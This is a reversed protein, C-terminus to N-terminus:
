LEINSNIIREIEKRETEMEAKHIEEFHKTAANVCVKIQESPMGRKILTDELVDQVIVAWHKINEEAYKFISQILSSSLFTEISM